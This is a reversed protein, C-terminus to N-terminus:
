AAKMTRKLAKGNGSPIMPSGITAATGDREAWPTTFPLSPRGIVSSRRRPAPQLPTPTAPTPTAPTPTAPTPTPAATEAGALSVEHIFHRDTNSGTTAVLGIYYEELYDEISVTDPIAFSLVLQREIGQESNSLHVELRGSDLTVEADYVGSNRLDLALETAALALPHDHRTVDGMLSLGVHSDSTDWANRWTDFEIAIAETFLNNGLRGGASAKEVREDDPLNGAAVLVIGDARAGEGTIEFSFEVGLNASTMPQPYFLGGVQSTKGPTLMVSGSSTREAAGLLLWDAMPLPAPTPTATATAASPVGKLTPYESSTGFNWPDDVGTTLDDDGDANDLDM